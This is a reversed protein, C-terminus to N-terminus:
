GERQEQRRDAGAGAEVYGAGAPLAAAGGVANADDLARTGVVLRALHLLDVDLNLQRGVKWLLVPRRDDLRGFQARHLFV